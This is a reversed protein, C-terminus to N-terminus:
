DGHRRTNRRRANCANSCAACKNLQAVPVKGCATCIGALKLRLRKEAAAKAERARPRSQGSTRPRGIM